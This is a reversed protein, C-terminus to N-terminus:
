KGFRFGATLSLQALNDGETDAQFSSLIGISWKESLSYNYNLHIIGGPAVTRQPQTNNFIIVPYPLGTVAPYIISYDDPLSSSQYRLFTGVGILLEHVYSKVFSYGINASLQVGAVTYRISGDVENNNNDTFFLPDNGDHITGALEFIWNFRSRKRFGQVYRTSYGFGKLDGSGHANIGASLQIQSPFVKRTEQSFIVTSTLLLTSLFLQKM